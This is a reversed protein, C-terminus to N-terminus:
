CRPIPNALQQQLVESTLGKSKCKEARMKLETAHALVYAELDGASIPPVASIEHAIYQATVTLIFTQPDGVNEVYTLDIMNEKNAVAVLTLSM